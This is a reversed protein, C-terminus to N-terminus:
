KYQSNQIEKGQKDSPNFFWGWKENFRDEFNNVRLRLNKLLKKM